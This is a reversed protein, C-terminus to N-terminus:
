MHCEHDLSGGGAAGGREGGANQEMFGQLTAAERARHATSNAETEVQIKIM